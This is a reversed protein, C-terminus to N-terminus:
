VWGCPQTGWLLIFRTALRWMMVLRAQCTRGRGGRHAPSHYLLHASASDLPDTDESFAWIVRVTDRGLALDQETDCTDWARSFTVVTHTDNEYGAVLEVDQRTDLYPPNNGVAHRDSVHVRGARDVWGIRRATCGADSARIARGDDSHSKSFGHYM